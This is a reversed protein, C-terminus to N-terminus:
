KIEFSELSEGQDLRQQIAKPTRGQGTWTRTEGNEDVYKYKAPRAARKKPAAIEKTALTLGDFLDEASIGEQELLEKYKSIKAQKAAIEELRQKENTRREVLVANVKEAIAELQELSLERALVRLSRINSLVRLTENM